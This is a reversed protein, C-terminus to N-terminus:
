DLLIFEVAQNYRGYKDSNDRLIPKDLPFGKAVVRRPDVGAELFAQGIAEARKKTVQLAFQNDEGKSTVYTAVLIRSWPRESGIVKGILISLDKGEASLKSTDSDFFQDAPFIDRSPHLRIRTHYHEALKSQASTEAKLAAFELRQAISEEEVIDAGTGSIMGFTAGLGAGIALAPFAASGLANSLIVGSAGGLAAGEVLGAGAKDPGPVLKREFNSCSSCLLLCLVTVSTKQLMGSFM